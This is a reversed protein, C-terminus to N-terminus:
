TTWNSRVGSPVRAVASHLPPPSYLVFVCVVFVILVQVFVSLESLVPAFFCGLEDSLYLQYPPMHANSTTRCCAIV